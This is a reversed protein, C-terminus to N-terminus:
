VTYRGDLIERAIASRHIETTGYGIAMGRVDRYYREYSFEQSLGSAGALQMATNTIRISAENVYTKAISADMSTMTGDDCRKAARYLLARSAELEIAMDALKWQLGQNDALARGFQKRDRVHQVVDTFAAEAAGLCIPPNGAIRDQDLVALLKRMD